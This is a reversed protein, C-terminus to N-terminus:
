GCRFLSQRTVWGRGNAPPVVPTAPEAGGLASHSRIAALYRCTFSMFGLFLARFEDGYVVLAGSVGDEGCCFEIYRGEDRVMRLPGHWISNSVHM